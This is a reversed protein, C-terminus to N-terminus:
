PIKKLNAYNAMIKKVGSNEFNIEVLIDNGLTTTSIIVGRGFVPHSVNENIAFDLKLNENFKSSKENKLIFKMKHTKNNIPPIKKNIEDKVIKYKCPVEKLFRSPRAYKTTGFIMRQASCILYLEKQARTIGVYALRREEELDNLNEASANGPFIGEEMGVMFVIPFELGKASHLTMLSIKDIGENSNDIDTYLSIEFLFDRLNSNENELEFQLIVSKLEKLNEIRFTEEENKQKLYDIYKTKSLIEDFLESVNKTKSFNKLHEILNYFDKLQMLKGSFDPFDEVNKIIEYIPKNLSKSLKELKSITGAGIGRKPENIIRILRLNDNSNDILYLYFILDKIEKREFFKTSGIIQYPISYRILYKELNASQANTRYLIAHDKYNMKKSINENIKKCVFNAEENEICVHIEKIKEGDGKNTWIVKKKRNKNHSILSNAANLINQTSRYNQELKITKVNKLKKEFNLINEVAAGRFKYISQDDDGVVCLNKHFSSLLKILEYQVYNTDQYEDVMIYKFKESYKKLIEEHEKFLKITLFLIDDFDLANSTKLTNQYIKYIKAVERKFDDKEFKKEYELPTLFKNKAKSIEYLVPKPQFAKTNLKSNVIIEKLIQKSDNTDYITFNNDYGLFHIHKFLIKVCQSHFTGANIKLAKEGLINFLRSKLEKAAKNTFTIALIEEPNPPNNEIDEDKLVIEEDKSFDKYNEFGKESYYTDGYNLLYSIRNVITTTKGSGAGALILIFGKVSFIAKQQMNNMNEYKAELVIKKKKIFDEILM